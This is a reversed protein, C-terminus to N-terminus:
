QTSKVPLQCTMRSDNRWGKHLWQDANSSINGPLQECLARCNGPRNM